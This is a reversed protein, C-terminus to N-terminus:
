RWPLLVDSMTHHWLNRAARKWFNWSSIMIVTISIVKAKSVMLLVFNISIRSDNRRSSSIRIILISRLLVANSMLDDLLMLLGKSSFTPDGYPSPRLLHRRMIYRSFARRVRRSRTSDLQRASRHLWNWLYGVLHTCRHQHCLNSWRSHM